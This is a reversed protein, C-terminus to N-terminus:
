IVAIPADRLLIKLIHKEHPGPGSGADFEGAIFRTDIARRAAVLFVAEKADRMALEYDDEASPLHMEVQMTKKVPLTHRSYDFGTNLPSLRHKTM